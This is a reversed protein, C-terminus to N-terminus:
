KKSNREKRSNRADQRRFEMRLQRRNRIDQAFSNMTQPSVVSSVAAESAYGIADRIGDGLSRNGGAVQLGDGLAHLLRARRERRIDPKRAEQQNVTQRRSGGEGAPKKADQKQEQRATGAQGGETSHSSSHSSSSGTHSSSTHSGGGGSGQMNIDNATSEQFSMNDGGGMPAAGAGPGASDEAPVMGAPGEMAEEASQESNDQRSEDVNNEEIIAQQDMNVDGGQQSSEVVNNDGQGMGEPMDEATGSDGIGEPGTGPMGADGDATGGPVDQGNTGTDPVDEGADEMDGDPMSGDAMDEAGASDATGEDAGGPIGEAGDEQGLPQGDDQQVDDYGDQVPDDGDPWGSGDDASSGGSGGAEVRDGLKNLGRGAMSLAVGGVAGAAGIGARIVSGAQRSGDALSQRAMQKGMAGAQGPRGGGLGSGGGPGRGSMLMSEIQQGKEAMRGPLESMAQAFMTIPIGGLKPFTLAMILSLVLGTVTKSLGVLLAGLVPIKGLTDQVPQLFEDIVGADGILSGALGYLADLLSLTISMILSIGIIGLLMALVAGIAQGLGKSSGFVTKVGGSFMGAFGSSIISILGKLAALVLTWSAIFRVFANMHQEVPDDPDATYSAIDYAAYAIPPSVTATSSISAGYFHSRLMNFASIPNLGYYNNNTYYNRVTWGSGDSKRTMSLSSMNLYPTGGTVTRVGFLPSGEADNGELLNEANNAYNNMLAYYVNTSWGTIEEVPDGEGPNENRTTTMTPTVFSAVGVNGNITYNEMREQIMGDTVQDEPIGTLRSYTHANIRRVKPPTLVFQGSSDIDLPMGTPISFGTLYWDYLNLNQQAYEATASAGVDFVTGEVWNLMTSMLNSIIYIGVTGIAVKVLLGRIGDGVSRNGLLTLLMSLGFGVVAIVANVLVFFSLGTTGVESGFLNIIERLMENGPKGEAPNGVVFQVLKNNPYMALYGKDYLSLLLPGPNYGNLFEVGFSGLRMAASSMADLGQEISVSSGKSRQAAANLNEVAYGFAKYKNYANTISSDGYNAIQSDSVSIPTQYVSWASSGYTDRPGILLGFNQWKTGVLQRTNTIFHSIDEDGSASEGTWFSTANVTQLANGFATAGVLLLDISEFNSAASGVLQWDKMVSYGGGAAPAAFTAAACLLLLVARLRGRLRNKIDM